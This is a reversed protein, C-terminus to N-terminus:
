ELPLDVLVTRIETPKSEIDTWAMMLQDGLVELQPFGTKRSGNIKSVTVTREKIDPTQLRKLKLYAGNKGKEIWSVFAKENFVAVDVRGLSRNKSVVHPKGFTAGGDISVSAKVVPQNDAGTHWTLVVTSDAAALKPGNVPCAGIKWHDDYVAEPTTWKSGNFRSVYIDRIEDDTRNRYAVIAGNSTKILSTQCCDCVADDILFSRKVEGSTSILAGRLTMAQDLDYYEEDSRNASQRGDLWVALVTEENWPIMSAFGHETATSDFHPTVPSTWKGSANVLSVNVNYAYTGGPIKNLWHAALPGQQNAIISPFDAWNVFWTRNDAITHVKDWSGQSYRAYNLSHINNDPHHSIWSMYLADDTSFLFPFESNAQAPNDLVTIKDETKSCSVFALLFLFFAINKM